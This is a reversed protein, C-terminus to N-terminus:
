APVQGRRAGLTAEAYRRGAEADGRALGVIDALTVINGGGGWTGDPIELTFVWVRTPDRPYANAEADLVASTIDAVIAQRREPNFQGEPVSAVFRYRPAAAPTGGVFVSEPRNLFVWAISRVTENTPDAGEHTILLDTLKALLDHEASEPLAGHPIYADLMPM